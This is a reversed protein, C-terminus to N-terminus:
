QTIQFYAVAKNKSQIGEFTIAYVGPPVSSDARFTVGESVGAGDAQVQFPAGFVSQDPATIYVGVSEGPQFGRGVFAFTTGRPGSSPSATANQSAPLNGPQPAPAADGPLVKFYAISQHNSSVGQVVFSYVGAPLTATDLPVGNAGGTPGINLTRRTGAMSGDPANIWLGVDENPRFGFIDVELTIGAKVCKGPRIRASVPEPVDACNNAVPAPGSPASLLENGLLGLLVDYPSQNEPHLEFRAREFWQVNYSKGDAMTEVQPESLPLGFLALSEALSKGRAGDFELGNARYMRLFPDCVSHGTESFFICNAPAGGVKGFTNWDRGQRKLLDDGLRGLLVDYPRANEPHLEFRNREFQQVLFSGGEITQQSAPSKPLGFVALGGNQQWFEAFRGEICDPVEAFCLKDAAQAGSVPLLAFSLVLAALAARARRPHTLM